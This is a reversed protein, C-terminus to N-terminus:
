YYIFRLNAGCARFIKFYQTKTWELSRKAGNLTESKANSFAEGVPAGNLTTMRNITEFLRVALTPDGRLLDKLSVPATM